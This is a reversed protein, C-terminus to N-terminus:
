YYQEGLPGDPDLMNRINLYPITFEPIGYFYPTYEYIQYYIVLTKETLYFQDSDKVSMFDAILPIDRRKIDQKIFRSLIIRYHSNPKFLDNLYIKEGTKLDVNLSDQITMGHARNRLYSYNEFKISLVGKENLTVEFNGEMYDLDEDESGQILMMNNVIRQIENNINNEVEENRLGEVKPYSVKIPPKEITQEQIVATLNKNYM